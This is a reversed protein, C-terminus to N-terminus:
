DRSVSLQRLMNKDGEILAKKKARSWKKIQHERQVAERLLNQEEAYVLLVPLRCATHRSARGTNHRTVRSSLDDTHGTYYTGDACLLIYTYYTM